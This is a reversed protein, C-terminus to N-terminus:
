KTDERLDKYQVVESLYVRRGYPKFYLDSNKDYRVKSQAIRSPTLGDSMRYRLYTDHNKELFSLVEIVVNNTISVVGIINKTEM